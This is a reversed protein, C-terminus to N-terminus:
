IPQERGNVTRRVLQGDEYEEVTETGGVVIIRREFRTNSRRRQARPPPMQINGMLGSDSSLVQMNAAENSLSARVKTNPCGLTMMTSGGMQDATTIEIRSSVGKPLQSPPPPPEPRVVMTERIVMDEVIEISRTRGPVPMAM